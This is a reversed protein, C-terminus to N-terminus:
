LEETEALEEFGREVGYRLIELLNNYISAKRLPPPLPALLLWEREIETLPPMPKYREIFRRFHLPEEAIGTLVSPSIGYLKALQVIRPGKPIQEGKEWRDVTEWKARM